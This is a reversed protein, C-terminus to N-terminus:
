KTHSGHLMMFQLEVTQVTQMDDVHYGTGMFERIGMDVKGCHEM